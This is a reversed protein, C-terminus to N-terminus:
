GAHRLADVISTRSASWAPVAASVLGVFVAISLSVAVVPPGVALNRLMALAAPGNRIASVLGSALLCGLVGGALSIVTAEGLIIGMIGGPKFGLTKMVGVERIRERVSMAMTNASVLLITFTVAAFISLLFAKVNGLFALFSLAFAQETETRTQFPANRFTEDVAAAIGGVADPSAALITFTGVMGQRRNPLGEELYKWHFYLVEDDQAAEWIARVTLELDVPFIDGKLTIRDGLKLNHREALPRGIACATREALFARKQDEPVRIEGHVTFLKEPEVAFRAFFNEPDRSDRFVGGFWQSIMVEQVGPIQRIRERYYIPMPVALSVRNRVILRRAQEPSAETLYFAQYIAMLLGLLCLSVGLSLVTLATRRRNRWANKFIFPLYRM